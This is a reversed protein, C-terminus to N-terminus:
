EINMKTNKAELKIAKKQLLKYESRPQVENEKKQGREAGSIDNTGTL